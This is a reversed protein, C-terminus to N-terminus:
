IFRDLDPWGRDKESLDKILHSINLNLSKDFVNVGMEYAPNYKEDVFYTVSSNDELTLYGHAFGKPIILFMGNESSLIKSTAYGYTPSTTRIDLAFDLIKGVTCIVIKTESYPEKQAHFGRWTGKKLNTSCNAQCMKFKEFGFSELNIQDVDLLRRFSGRHDTVVANKGILIDPLQDDPTLNNSKM